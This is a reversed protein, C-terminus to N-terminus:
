KELVEGIMQMANKYSFNNVGNWLKYIEQIRQYKCMSDIAIERADKAQPTHAELGNFFKITEEITM